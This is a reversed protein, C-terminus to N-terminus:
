ITKLYELVAAREEGTLHDGFRHGGNGYGVFTTDYIHRRQLLPADMQPGTAEWPWGLADRDYNTSDYDVRRWHKPRSTSDLVQELTPVSANHMYPATAWIGDLPPATYGVFPDGVILQTIMGYWSSNYWDIFPGGLDDSAALEALTPDTGIVDLPILLNPFTELAPDDDYTGHCGACACEFIGEGTAALEQDVPWPYAPAELSELYARINQFYDLMESAKETDDVCLSSAFMMTGRHDGRSMGNWFHGGKKKVRWWPPTDAPVVPPDVPILQEDHWALTDPERHSALIVAVNDAPNTGITATQIYPGLADYRNIFKNMEKGADTLAPLQPMLGLLDSFNDTYDVDARGLGLILEGNFKGAHCTLCNMAALETGGESVILNWNYPLQANKGERWPLSEGDAYTGLFAKGIQFLDYPVGCSVYDENLLAWEGAVPDGEVATPPPIVGGLDWPGPGEWCALPAGTTGSSEGSDSESGGTTTAGGTTTSTSADGTSADSDSDSAAETLGLGSTSASASASASM